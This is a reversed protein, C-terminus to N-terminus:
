RAAASEDLVHQIVAPWTKDQDLFYCEAASGGAVLIRYNGDPDAPPDDGREGDRNVYFHVVPPLSPLADRDLEMRLRSGPAWVYYRGQRVLWARMALEAAVFLVGALVVAGIVFLLTM